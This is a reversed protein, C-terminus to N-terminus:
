IGGKLPINVLLRKECDKLKKKANGHKMIVSMSINLVIGADSIFIERPINDIGTAKVKKLQKAKMIMEMLTPTDMSGEQIRTNRMILSKIVLEYFYVKKLKTGFTVQTKM